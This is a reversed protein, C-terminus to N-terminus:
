LKQQGSLEVFYANDIGDLLLFSKITIELVIADKQASLTKLQSHKQVLLQKFQKQMSQPCPSCTGSITLAKIATRSEPSDLRTDVMLSVRPNASINRFKRSDRQTLMYITRCDENPVYAMLSCHPQNEACTALVALDNACLIEQMTELVQVIGKPYM